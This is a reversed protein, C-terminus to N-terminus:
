RDDCWGELFAVWADPEADFSERWEAESLDNRPWHRLVHYSYACIMLRWWRFRLELLIANIMQM